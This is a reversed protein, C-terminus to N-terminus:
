RIRETEQKSRADALAKAETDAKAREEDLAARVKAAEEEAKIREIEHKSRADALAKTETEVKIKEAELAAKIKALEQEANVRFAIQEDNVRAAEARIKAEEEKKVQAEALERAEALTKLRTTEAEAKLKSAAELEATAKEIDQKAKFRLADIEQKIRTEAEVRELAEKKALNDAELKNRAETEAHQKALALATAAAETQAKVKESEAVVEFESRTLVAENAQQTKTQADVIAHQNKAESTITEEIPNNALSTFDLDGDWEPTVVKPVAIHMEAFPKAKDRIFGGAILERLVDPLLNRLSPASRKYIDDFTSTGDVLFLARRLDGSLIGSKDKIENEGRITKIFVTKKNM